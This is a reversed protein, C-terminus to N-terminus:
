DWSVAGERLVDGLAKLAAAATLLPRRARGQVEQPAGEWLEAVCALRGRLADVNRLLSARDAEFAGDDALAEDRPRPVLEASPRVAPRPGYARRLRGRVERRLADLDPLPEGEARPLVEVPVEVPGESREEGGCRSCWGRADYLCQWQSRDNTVANWAHAVWRAGDPGSEERATGPHLLAGM